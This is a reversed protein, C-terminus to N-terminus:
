SPIKDRQRDLLSLRGTIIDKFMRWDSIFSYIPQKFSAPKNKEFMFHGVWACTYGALVGYALYKVQRTKITKYACYLAISSGLCHLRRSTIHRHETLYFRYFESYDRIPFVVQSSAVEQIEFQPNM